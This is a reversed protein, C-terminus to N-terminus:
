RAEPQPVQRFIEECIRVVERAKHLEIPYTGRGAASLVARKVLYKHGHILPSYSGNVVKGLSTALAATRRVIEGLARWGRYLTAETGPHARYAITVQSDADVYLSMKTGIVDMATRRSPCNHAITLTGLGNRAELLVRIEDVAIYPIASRKSSIVKVDRVGDLFELITMLMHPMVEALIDGPLRHLWHDPDLHRPEIPVLYRLDVGLLEGLRGSEAIRKAQMISPMAASINHIVYVGLRKDRARSLILDADSLKITLPKEVLCHADAELAELLTSAHQDAPTCIDVLDLQSRRFMEGSDVFSKGIAFRRATIDAASGDRDCVAVIEVSSLKRLIPLHVKNAIYGCGVVGVRVKRDPSFPTAM